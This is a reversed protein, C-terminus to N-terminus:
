ITKFFIFFELSIVNTVIIIINNHNYRSMCLVQFLWILENLCEGINM